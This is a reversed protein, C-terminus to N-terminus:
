PSSNQLSPSTPIQAIYFGNLEFVMTKFTDMLQDRSVTSNKDRHCLFFPKLELILLTQVFLSEESLIFENWEPGKCTNWQDDPM